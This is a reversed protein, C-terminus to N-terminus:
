RKKGQKKKKKDNLKIGKSPGNNRKSSNSVHTETEYMLKSLTNFTEKINTNSKASTEIFNMKYMEAM